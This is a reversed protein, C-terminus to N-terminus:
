WHGVQIATTQRMWGSNTSVAAPAMEVARDRCDNMAKREKGTNAPFPVIGNGDRHDAGSGHDRRPISQMAAPELVRADMGSFRLNTTAIIAARKARESIVQFLFEAGIRRSCCDNRLVAHENLFTVVRFDGRYKSIM